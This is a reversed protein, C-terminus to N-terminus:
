QFLTLLEEKNNQKKFDFIAQLCKKQADGIEKGEPIGLAIFDEGSLALEKLSKPYTGDIFGQKKLDSPWTLYSALLIDTKKLSNFILWKTDENTNMYLHLANIEAVIENTIKLSKQFDTGSMNFDGFIFLLESIRKIKDSERAQGINTNFFAFWLGTEKLWYRYKIIDVNKDFVKKIEDFIREGSIEKILHNNFLIMEFTKQDIYFGFRTAMGVARMMRLPDDIFSDTSTARVIKNKIDQVGNFPDILELNQSIAISNITIDRRLLDTEISLTHDAQSQISKHGKAGVIKSDTRPLAIDYIEGEYTFKIVGFSEGVLDVKGHGKLIRMLDDIPINRVIFDVDKPTKGLFHDRVTGGVIYMEAGHLNILGQVFPLAFIQKFQEM